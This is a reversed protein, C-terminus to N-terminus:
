KCSNGYFGTILNPTSVSLSSLIDFSSLSRNEIKIDNKVNEITLNQLNIKSSVIEERNITKMILGDQTFAINGDPDTKIVLIDFGGTGLSTSEGAIIYGNDDATLISSAKIYSGDEYAKAWEINGSSDIKVLSIALTDGKGSVSSDGTLVYGGDNATTISRIEEGKYTRAWRVAGNFDLKIVLGEPIHGSGFSQTNGTLIYGENTAIISSFENWEKVRYTKAWEIDGKSDLRMILLDHFHYESGGGGWARPYNKDILYRHGALIYGGDNTSIISSIDASDGIKYVKAWLFKGNSDLKIVEPHGNLIHGALVYGGDKAITLSSIFNNDTGKYIKAWQINGLGDTKMVLINNKESNFSNTYGALVYGGDTTQIISKIFDGGNGGYTRAWREKGKSSIKVVLIDSDSGFSNPIEVWYIDVM